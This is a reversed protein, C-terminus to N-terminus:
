KYKGLMKKVLAIYKTQAEAPKLSKVNGWATYKAKGKLDFM